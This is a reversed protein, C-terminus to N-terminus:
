KAKSAEISIRVCRAEYQRTLSARRKTSDASAPRGRRADRDAEAALRRTEDLLQRCMNPNTASKRPDPALDLPKSGADCPADAYTTKGNGDTCKYVQGHAISVTAFIALAVAMKAAALSWSARADDHSRVRKERIRM